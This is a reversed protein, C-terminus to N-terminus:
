ASMDVKFDIKSLPSTLIYISNSLHIKYTRIKNFIHMSKHFQNVALHYKTPRCRRCLRQSHTPLVHGLNGFRRFKGHPRSIRCRRVYTQSKGLHRPELTRQSRQLGGEIRFRCLWQQKMKSPRQSRRHHRWHRWGQQCMQKKLTEQCHHHGPSVYCCCSM